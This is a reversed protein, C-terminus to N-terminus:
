CLVVSSVQHVQLSFCSKNKLKKSTKKPHQKQLPKTPKANKKTYISTRILSLLSQNAVPLSFTASTSLTNSAM